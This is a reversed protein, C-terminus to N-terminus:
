FHPIVLEIGFSDTFFGVIGWISTLVFLAITGWVMLEKGSAKAKPDGGVNYIFKILGWLFAGLSMALLLPPLLTFIEILNAVVDQLTGPEEVAYLPNYPIALM